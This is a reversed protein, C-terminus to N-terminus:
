PTRAAVGSVMVLQGDTLAPVIDLDDIHHVVFDLDHLQGTRRLYDASRGGGMEKPDANRWRAILEETRPTKAQYGAEVLKEALWACVIQDERRFQGHTGAGLVAVHDHREVAYRAVASVNRACAVYVAEAGEANLLLETGSSTVLVIPRCDASNFGSSTTLAAIQVPSNTLDFGYPTGGGLEGVMLPNKLKNAIVFAEDTTKAPYVNLGLSVATTATTTTRIVDVAIIAHGDRYRGGSEPFCDIVVSNAM